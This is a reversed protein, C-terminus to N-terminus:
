VQLDVTQRQVAPTQKGWYEQMMVKVSDTSFNSERAERIPKFTGWINKRGPLVLNGANKGGIQTPFNSNYTFIPKINFELLENNGDDGSITRFARMVLAKHSGHVYYLLPTEATVQLSASLGDLLADAGANLATIIQEPTSGASTTTNTGAVALGTYAQDAKIELNKLRMQRAGENINYLNGTELWRNLFALGCTFREDRLEQVNEKGYPSMKIDESEGQQIWRVFSQFDVIDAAAAGGLDAMTFAQMWLTDIDMPDVVNSFGAIQRRTAIGIGADKEIYQDYLSDAMKYNHQADHVLKINTGLAKFFTEIDQDALAKRMAKLGEEGNVLNARDVIQFAEKNIHTMQKIKLTSLTPYNCM